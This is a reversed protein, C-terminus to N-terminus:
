AFAPVNAPLAPQHHQVSRGSQEHQLQAHYYIQQFVQRQAHSGGIAWLQPLTPKLYAIAGLWDQKAHAVMGRAAPIAVDMWRKHASPELTQAHSIISSLMENVADSQEARAIAYIYHLDQFPLSHEHLRPRLHPLLQHWRNGTDIGKLDLRLLLAIAGVQDKPSAKRAQGWVRQDYLSLVTQPENQKLYFLAVHWWNHTYLMSNCSEWTDALSEMWAIGDEAREQTEMVHAVAHHAWPNHRDLHTAYRGIAEAEDLRHCQELAFAVMGLLDAHDPNASLVTEAIQLLGAKDGRYFYHYQGQQVSVLDQPFRQAINHHYEIAESIAGKSWAVIARIYLQERETAQQQYRQAQQLFPVAQRRAIASEQSLYYAAAYAQAIACTPDAAIAQLIVQEADRGYRLSRMIFENIAAIATLSDTTVALEQRDNLM